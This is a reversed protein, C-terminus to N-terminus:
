ANPKGIPFGNDTYHNVTQLVPNWLWFGGDSSSCALSAEFGAMEFIDLAGTIEILSHDLFVVANSEQYFLLLKLPNTVDAYSITGLKNNCYRQLITGNKDYKMLEPGNVLYVQSYADVRIFQHSQNIIALPQGILCQLGILVIGIFSTIPKV